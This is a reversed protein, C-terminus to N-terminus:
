GCHIQAAQAIERVTKDYNGGYSRATQRPKINQIEAGRTAATSRRRLVPCASEAPQLASYNAINQAILGLHILQRLVSGANVPKIKAQM